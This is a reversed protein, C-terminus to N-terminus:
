NTPRGGAFRFPGKNSEQDPCMGPNHAPGWIPRTLSAVLPHKECRRKEGEEERGEGRWFYIFDKKKKFPNVKFM